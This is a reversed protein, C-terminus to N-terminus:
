VVAAEERRGQQELFSVYRARTCVTNPYSSGLQKGFGQLADKFLRKFEDYREQRENLIALNQFTLLTEPHNRGLSKARGTLARNYIDEAM